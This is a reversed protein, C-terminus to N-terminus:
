MVHLIYLKSQKGTAKKARVKPGLECLDRAPHIWRGHVHNGVGDGDRVLEGHLYRCSLGLRNWRTRGQGSAGLRGPLEVQLGGVFEELAEEAAPERRIGLLQEVGGLGLEVEALEELAVPEGLLDICTSSRRRSSRTVLLNSQARGQRGAGKVQSGSDSLSPLRHFFVVRSQCGGVLRNPFRVFGLPAKAHCPRLGLVVAELPHPGLLLRLNDAGSGETLFSCSAWINCM